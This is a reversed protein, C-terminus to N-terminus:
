GRDWTRPKRLARDFNRVLRRRDLEARHNRYLMYGTLTALAAVGVLVLVATM